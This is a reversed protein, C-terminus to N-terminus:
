GLDHLAECITTIEAETLQPFCPLTLVQECARETVELSVSGVDASWAPQRHDPVPYHVDTTVRSALAARVADRNEVVAVALHAVGQSSGVLRGVSAPLAKNYRAVVERRRENQADVRPLRVRLLAAQMEDLRSNRGLPETVTYKSTWGYQRLSRVRDAVDQSTANVAGGDGIAGLNKTPYFSFCGVDGFGGVHRGDVRLGTAQACDEVLPVGADRCARAITEVDAANGYLHTVVVAAARRTELTTSLAKGSMLLDEADIDVYHARAGVARIATTTYGGANAVTLVEDGARVGVALLGLMLADTGSAVGVSHEVDCFAALEREFASHQSGHVFYGSDLVDAVADLLEAREAQVARGLDNLPVPRATPM